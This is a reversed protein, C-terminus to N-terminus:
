YVVADNDSFNNVYKCEDDQITINATYPKARVIGHPLEDITVTFYEDGEYSDDNILPIRFYIKTDGRKFSVNYPGSKYDVDGTLYKILLSHLVDYNNNLVTFQSVIITAMNHYLM